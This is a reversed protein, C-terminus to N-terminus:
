FEISVGISYNYVDYGAEVGIWVMQWIRRPNIKYDFFRAEPPLALAIVTHGLVCIGFHIDVDRVSPHKSLLPCTEHYQKGGVYWNNKALTRTQLYDIGITTFFVGQYATDKWTWKEAFEYAYVNVSFMLVVLVILLKKM